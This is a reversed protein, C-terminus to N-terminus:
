PHSEQQLEQEGSQPQTLFNNKPIRFSVVSAKGTRPHVITYKHLIYSAFNADATSPDFDLYVEKNEGFRVKPYSKNSSLHGLLERVYYTNLWKPAMKAYLTHVVDQTKVELPLVQLAIDNEPLIPILPPLTKKIFNPMSADLEEKWNIGEGDGFPDCNYNMTSNPVFDPDEEWTERVSGDANRGLLLHYAETREVWLYAYGLFSGDFSTALALQYRCNKKGLATKLEVHHMWSFVIEALRMAEIGRALIYLYHPNRILPNM